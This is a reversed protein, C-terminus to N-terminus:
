IINKFYINDECTKKEERRIEQPCLNPVREFSQQRTVAVDEVLRRQMELLLEIQFDQHLVPIVWHIRLDQRRSPPDERGPDRGERLKDLEENVPFLIEFVIGVDHVFTVSSVIWSIGERDKRVVFWDRDMM